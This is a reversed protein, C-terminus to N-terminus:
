YIILYTWELTKIEPNAGARLEVASWKVAAATLKMAARGDIGHGRGDIEHGGGATLKVAAATLKVAPRKVAAMATIAKWM